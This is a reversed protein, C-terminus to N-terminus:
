IEALLWHSKNGDDRVLVITMASWLLVEMVQEM